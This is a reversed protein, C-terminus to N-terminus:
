RGAGAAPREKMRGVAEGARRGVLTDARAAAVKALVERAGVRELVEVGRLERVAEASGQAGELRQMLVLVRGKVEKSTEGEIARRLAPAAAQGIAALGRQAREREAYADADLGAILKAVAAEDVAQPAALKAELLAAAAGPRQCLAGIAGWAAAADAGALGEWLAGVEGGEAVEAKTVPVEWVIATTDRSASVVRRSDPAFAVATVWDKHGVFKAVQRGGPLEWVRVTARDPGGGAAVYRGDPSIAVSTGADGDGELRARPRGTAAEWLEIPRKRGAVVVMAGDASWALSARGEQADGAMTELRWVVEGSGTDIIRVVREEPDPNGSGVALRGGDPSFALPVPAFQRPNLTARCRESGTAVDIVRVEHRQAVAVLSGGRSMALNQMGALAGDDALRREVGDRDVVRLAPDESAVAVLDGAANTATHVGVLGERTVPDLGGGTRANWALVRGDQSATVVQRGGDTFAVSTLEAAHGGRGPGIEALTRADWLRIARETGATALTQGDPSAAIAMVWLDRRASVRFRGAERGTEADWAGVTGDGGGVAFRRGGDFFAVPKVWHERTEVAHVTGGTAVDWVRVVNDEAGSILRRGDASYALAFVMKSHGELSRVLAGDEVRYVKVAGGQCGVALTRGDPSLVVPRVGEGVGIQREERWNVVDWVRVRRASSWILRKGDATFRLWFATDPNDETRRIEKGTRADWLVVARKMDGSAVVKGDPSIAVATAGDRHGTFRGVERGSAVEWVRATKDWSASVLLKGDESWALASVTHDHRFAHTGLRAVAGAPLPEEAKAAAALAGVAFVVLMAEVVLDWRRM